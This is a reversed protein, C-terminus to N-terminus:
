KKKPKLKPARKKNYSDNFFCKIDRHNGCSGEEKVQVQSSIFKFNIVCPDGNATYQGTNEAKISLEGKLEGKCTGGDKEFHVFFRYTNADRGDRISIFNKKDKIYDGSFPNKRAFTDIPNIISDKRQMDENTDNVVVMFGADKNYAYGTRTYFLQNDKTVKERAITFTPERNINVSHVYGDNYGNHVLEKANLFKTKENFVFVALTAKKNQLFKALLYTEDEANIKAVPKITANKDIAIAQLVSDPVFQTLVARSISTTDGIRKLSSDSITTPLKIDPFAQVFDKADIPADGSLSSKKEGCSCVMVWLFLGVWKAM